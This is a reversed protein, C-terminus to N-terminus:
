KNGNKINDVYWKYFDGRRCSDNMGYKVADLKMDLPLKEFLEEMEEQKLDVRVVDKRTAELVVDHFHAWDHKTFDFDCIKTM